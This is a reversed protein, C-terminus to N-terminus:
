MAGMNTTFTPARNGNLITPDFKNLDIKECHRDSIAKCSTLGQVNEQKILSAEKWQFDSGATSNSNTNGLSPPMEFDTDDLYDEDMLLENLNCLEQEFQM